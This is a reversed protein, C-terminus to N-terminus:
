VHTIRLIIPVDYCFNGTIPTLSAMPVARRRFDKLPISLLIMIVEVSRAIMASSAGAVASDACCISAM